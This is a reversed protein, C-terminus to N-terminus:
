KMEDLIRVLEANMEISKPQPPRRGPQGQPPNLHTAFLLDLTKRARTLAVYLWCSLENPHRKQFTVFPNINLHPVFVHDWELGKSAHVTAITIKPKGTKDEPEPTTLAIVDLANPTMAALEPDLPRKIVEFMLDVSAQLKEHDINLDPNEAILTAYYAIKEEDGEPTHMKIRQAMTRTRDVLARTNPNRIADTLGAEMAKLTKEGIGRTHEAITLLADQDTPNKELKAIAALTMFEPSETISLRTQKIRYPIRNKFMEAELQSCQQNSHVLIAIQNPDAGADILKRIRIAVAIREHDPNRAQSIHIPTEEAEPKTAISERLASPFLRHCRNAFKVLNGESRYNHTLFLIDGAEYMIEPRAQRWAYLTQKPDGVMVLNNTLAKLLRYQPRDVDQGEDCMIAGHLRKLMRKTEDSAFEAVLVGNLALDEFDFKNVTMKHKLYAHRLDRLVIPEVKSLPDHKLGVDLISDEDVGKDLLIGSLAIAELAEMYPKPTDFIGRNHIFDLVFARKERETMIGHPGSLSLTTLYGLAHLTTCRPAPTFDNPAVGLMEYWKDHLQKAAKNNFAVLTFDAPHKGHDLCLTLTRKLITYTKGTGANAIVSGSYDFPLDIVAQQDADPKQTAAAVFPRAVERYERDWLENSKRQRELMKLLLVQHDPVEVDEISTEFESM